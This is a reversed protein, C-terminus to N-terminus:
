YISLYSAPINTVGKPIGLGIYIQGFMVAFLATIGTDIEM